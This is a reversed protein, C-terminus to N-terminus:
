SAGRRNTEGLERLVTTNHTTATRRPFRGIVRCGDLPIEHPESRHHSRGGRSRAYLLVFSFGIVLFLVVAVIFSATVLSRGAQIALALSAATHEV